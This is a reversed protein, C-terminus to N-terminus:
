RRRLGPLRRKLIQFCSASASSLSIFSNEIHSKITQFGWVRDKLRRQDFLVGDIYCGEELTQLERAGLSAYQRRLATKWLNIEEKDTVPLLYPFDHHPQVGYMEIRPERRHIKLDRYKEVRKFDQSQLAELTSLFAGHNRIDLGFKLPCRLRELIKGYNLVESKQEPNFPVYFAWIMLAIKDRCSDIRTVCNDAFYSVFLDVHASASTSNVRKRYLIAHANMWSVSFAVERLLRFVDFAWHVANSRINFQRARPWTDRLRRLSSACRKWEKLSLVRKEERARLNILEITEPTLAEVKRAMM